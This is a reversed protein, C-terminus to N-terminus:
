SNKAQLVSRITSAHWRGGAATAVAEANLTRAIGALSKNEGHERQIRARVDDALKSPRGVKVGEAKREALAAKTRDSILRRELQAFVALVSIMAEGAPTSADVPADLVILGWGQKQAVQMIGLFDSLSRSLRDVKSAVLVSADGRKLTELALELEPRKRRSKGSAVDVAWQIDREKWGRAKAAELISRKQAALGAGSDGQETTSVRLYGIVGSM